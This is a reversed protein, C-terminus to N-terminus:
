QLYGFSRLYTNIVVDKVAGFVVRINNTDTACTKHIYITKHSPALELFKKKIYDGAEEPENAGKYERFYVNLPVKQIKKEFLDKKNLFLIIATDGDAFCPYNTIDKFLKLAESMRNTTEEEALKQDYENMAVFFIIATVDEFCYIWKRRESRQGGVDIFRFRDKGISVESETVGCTKVRIRLIDEETPTYNKHAIRDLNSFFYDATDNLQFENSRSYCQQIGTDAWLKKLDKAADIMQQEGIDQSVISSDLAYIRQASEKNEPSISIDLKQAAELLAIMNGIINTFVVRRWQERESENFGGNHLIRMQKFFTSKGSEGTGLLLLKMKQNEMKGAKLTANIYKNQIDEDKFCM